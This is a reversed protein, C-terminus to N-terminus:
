KEKSSQIFKKVEKKNNLVIPKKNNCKAAEKQKKLYKPYEDIYRLLNLMARFKKNHKKTKRLSLRRKLYRLIVRKKSIFPNVNLIIIADSERYFPYTWQKSYFGEVIWNKRKLIARVKKDRVAPKNKEHIDRRKYAINDLEFYKIGLNKSLKSALTTKGSGISGLILIKDM